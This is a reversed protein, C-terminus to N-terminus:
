LPSMADTQEIDVFSFASFFFELLDRLLYLSNYASINIYKACFNSIM